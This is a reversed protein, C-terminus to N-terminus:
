PARGDLVASPFISFSGIATAVLRGDEHRIESGLIATRRNRHELRTTCIVDGARVGTVYNISINTTAMFEGDALAEYLVSAMGYDVLTFGAPGLLLGASNVLEPRVTLRVTAADDWRL